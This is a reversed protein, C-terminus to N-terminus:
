WASCNTMTCGNLVTGNLSMILIVKQRPSGPCIRWAAIVPHIYCIIVLTVDFSPILGGRFLGVGARVKIFSRCTGTGWIQDGVFASCTWCWWTDYWCAIDSHRGGAALWIWFASKLWRKYVVKLIGISHKTLSLALFWWNTIVTKGRNEQPNNVRVESRLKSRLMMNFSSVLISSSIFSTIIIILIVVVSIMWLRWVSQEPFMVISRHNNSSTM